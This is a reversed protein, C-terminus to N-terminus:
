SAPPLPAQEIPPNLPQPAGPAPTAPYSPGAQPPPPPPYSYGPSYPYGWAYPQPYPYGWPYYGYCGSLLGASAVLILVAWRPRHPKTM